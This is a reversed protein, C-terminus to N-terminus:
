AAAEMAAPGGGGGSGSADMADTSGGGGEATDGASGGGGAAGEAAKETEAQGQAVGSSATVAAKYPRAPGGDAPACWLEAGNRWVPRAGEAKLRAFQGRLKARQEHGKRTLWDCINAGGLKKSIGAARTVVARWAEGDPLSVVAIRGKGSATPPQAEPRPADLDADPDYPQQSQKPQLWSVAVSVREAPQRDYNIAHEAAAKVTELTIGEQLGVVKVKSRDLWESARIQGPV